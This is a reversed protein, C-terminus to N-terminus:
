SQDSLKRYLASILYLSGTVILIQSTQALAYNFAIFPNEEIKYDKVDREDLYAAIDAPKQSTHFAFDQSNTMFTTITIHKTYPILTNLISAYDKGNSFALLFNFTQHPFMRLLSSIFAEMKPENHAGDVIVLKGQIIFQEMRGPIKVTSIGDRIMNEKLQFHDRKSLEILTTLAVSVNQAQYSAITGIQVDNFRYDKYIYTFKISDQELRINKYTSNPKVYIVHTRKKKVTKDIVQTAEVNQHASIVINGEHIIGAKQSAIEKLTSGLIKMHDFGIPTLVVMKNRNMVSNTADLLGGLGTEVVAYDVNKKWFFYFALVIMLEFYSPSGYKSKKVQEFVPLVESLYTYFDKKSILENNIQIRERVDMVHPSITSGVKFGHTHLLKSIWYVTSGKGSTGAVHIVKIKEQPNDLL